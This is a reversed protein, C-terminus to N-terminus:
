GIILFSISCSPISLSVLCCCWCATGCMSSALTSGFIPLHFSNAPLLSYLGCLSSWSCVPYFFLIARKRSLWASNIIELPYLYLFMVVLLGGMINAVPLAREAVPIGVWGMILRTLFILGFLLWTYALFSRSRDGDHRRMWLTGGCLLLVTSVGVLLIRLISLM